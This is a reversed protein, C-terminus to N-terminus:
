SQARVQELVDDIHEVIDSATFGAAYLIAAAALKSETSKDFGLTEFRRLTCAMASVRSSTAAAAARRKDSKSEDGIGGGCRRIETPNVISKQQLNMNVM